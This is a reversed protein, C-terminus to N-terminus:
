DKVCRVSFLHGKDADYRAVTAGALNRGMARYYANSADYETTSWWYGSEGVKTFSGDSGDYGGPLASFGFEDTGNSNGDWGSTAKLKTLAKSSGGVFDMLTTWEADSPLHWGQPCVTKATEWNYLRGYTTCKDPDNGYCKSGDTGIDHNLNEAMWTQTGIKTWKYVMNSRTDTFTGNTISYSSGDEGDPSDDGSSCSLPFTIALALAAALLPRVLVATTQLPRISNARVNNFQKKM